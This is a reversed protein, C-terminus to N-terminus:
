EIVNGFLRLHRGEAGHGFFRSMGVDQKRLDKMMNLMWSQTTRERAEDERVQRGSGDRVGRDL